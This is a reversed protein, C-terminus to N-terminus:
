KRRRRAGEDFIGREKEWSKDNYFKYVSDGTTFKVWDLRINVPYKEITSWFKSIQASTATINVQLTSNEAKINDLVFETRPKKFGHERDRVHHVCESGYYHPLYHCYGRSIATTSFTSRLSAITCYSAEGILYWELVAIEQCLLLCVLIFM